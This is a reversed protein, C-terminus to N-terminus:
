ALRSRALRCDPTWGIVPPMRWFPRAPCREACSMSTRRRRSGIGFRWAPSTWGKGRNAESKGGHAPGLRVAAFGAPPLPVIVLRRFQRPMVM